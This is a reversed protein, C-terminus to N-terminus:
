GGLVYRRWGDEFQDASIGLVSRFVEDVIQEQPERDSERRKFERLLDMVSENGFEQELYAVATDAIEYALTAAEDSILVNFGSPQYLDRLTPSIAEGSRLRSALFPTAELGAVYDALGEVLFSPTSDGTNPFLAVHTLEHALMKRNYDPDSAGVEQYLGADLIIEGGQNEDYGLQRSAGGVWDQWQGPYAQDIQEKSSFVWVPVLPLRVGPLVSTLNGYADDVYQGAQAAVPRGGELFLVISHQGQIVGVKGFDWLRRNREKGLAQLTAEGSLRWGEDKKVIRYAARDADPFGDFSGALTFAETVKVTTSGDANGTVSDVVIRYRDFPVEATHDFFQQQATYFDSGGVDVLSLFADRDRSVLAATYDNLLQQVEQETGTMVAGTPTAWEMDAASGGLCGTSATVLMATAAFLLITKLLVKRIM